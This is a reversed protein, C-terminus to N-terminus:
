SHIEEVWCELSCNPCDNLRPEPTNDKKEFGLWLKWLEMVKVVYGSKFLCQVSSDWQQPGTVSTVSKRLQICVQKPENHKQQQQQYLSKCSRAIYM